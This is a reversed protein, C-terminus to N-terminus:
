VYNSKGHKWIEESTYKDKGNVTLNGDEDIEIETGLWTISPPILIALRKQGMKKKFDWSNQYDQMFHSLLYRKEGNDFEVYLWSNTLMQAQIAKPITM